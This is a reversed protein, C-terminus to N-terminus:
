TAKRLTHIVIQGPCNFRAAVRSAGVGRTTFGQMGGCEWAGDEMRRPCRSHSLPALGWPTRIQGGHTHGALMLAAGAAAAKAHACPDHSLVISCAGQPVKAFASAFDDAGHYGPDDVGCIYLRAGDKEVFASENVLVRIGLGELVPVDAALDHNGLTAFVPAGTGLALEATLRVGIDGDPMLSDRYDGCMLCLDCRLGALRERIREALEPYLDLHTDGLHLVRLGDFPAPLNMLRVENEHVLPSLFNRLGRGRFGTLRIIAGIWFFPFTFRSFSRAKSAHDVRRKREELALRRRLAEASWREPRPADAPTM